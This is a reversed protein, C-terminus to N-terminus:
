IDSEYRGELVAQIKKIKWKFWFYFDSMGGNWGIQGTKSRFIIFNVKIIDKTVDVKGAVYNECDDVKGEVISIPWVCSRM